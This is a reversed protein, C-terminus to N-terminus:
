PRCHMERTRSGCPTPRRRAQEHKLTAPIPITALMAKAIQQLQLPTRLLLFIDALPELASCLMPIQLCLSRWPTLPHDLM